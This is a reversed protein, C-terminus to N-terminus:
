GNDIARPHRQRPGDWTPGASSSAPVTPDPARGERLPWAPGPLGTECLSEHDPTQTRRQRAEGRRRGRRQRGTWVLVPPRAASVWSGRCLQAVSNGGGPLRSLGHLPLSDGGAPESRAPLVTYLAQDLNEGCGVKCFPFSLCLPQTAQKLDCLMNTGIRRGCGDPVSHGEHSAWVGREGLLSSSLPNGGLVECKPELLGAQVERTRRWNM